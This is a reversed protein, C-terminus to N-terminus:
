LLYYGVNHHGESLLPVIELPNYWYTCVLIAIM